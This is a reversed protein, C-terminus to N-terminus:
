RFCSERPASPMLTRSRPRFKLPMPMTGLAVRKITFRSVTDIFTDTEFDKAQAMEIVPETFVECIRM